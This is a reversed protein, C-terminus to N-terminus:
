QNHGRLLHGENQIALSAFLVRPIRNSTTAVPWRHGKYLVISHMVRFVGHLNVKITRDFGLIRPFLPLSIKGQM